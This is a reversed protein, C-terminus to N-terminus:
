WSVLQNTPQEQDLPFASIYLCPWPPLNCPCPTVTIISVWNQLEEVAFGCCFRRNDDFAMTFIVVEPETKRIM